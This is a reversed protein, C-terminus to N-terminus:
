ELIHERTTESTATKKPLKQCIKNHQLENEIKCVNQKNELRTNKKTSLLNKYIYKENPFVNLLTYFVFFSLLPHPM